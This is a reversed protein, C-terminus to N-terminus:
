SLGLRRALEAATHHADYSLGDQATAPFPEGRQVSALALSRLYAVVDSNPYPTTAAERWADQDFAASQADSVGLARCATQWNERDAHIRYKAQEEVNCVIFPNLVIM